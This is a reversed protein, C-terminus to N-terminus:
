DVGKEGRLTDPSWFTSGTIILVKSRCEGLLYPFVLRLCVMCKLMKTFLLSVLCTPHHNGFCILNLILGTWKVNEGVQLRKFVVIGISLKSSKM